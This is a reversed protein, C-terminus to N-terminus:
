AAEEELEADTDDGRTLEALRKAVKSRKTHTESLGDLDDGVAGSKARGAVKIGHRHGLWFGGGGVLLSYLLLAGGALGGLKMASNKWDDPGARGGPAIYHTGLGQKLRVIVTPKYTELADKQGPPPPRAPRDDFLDDASTVVPPIPAEAVRFEINQILLKLLRKKDVPGGGSAADRIADEIDSATSASEGGEAGPGPLLPGEGLFSLGGGRSPSKFFLLGPM